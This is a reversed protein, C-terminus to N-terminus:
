SLGAARRCIPCEVKVGELMLLQAEPTLLVDELSERKEFCVLCVGEYLLDVQGCDSCCANVQEQVYGNM